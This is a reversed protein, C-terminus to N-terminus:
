AQSQNQETPAEPEQHHHVRDMMAMVTPIIASKALKSLAGSLSDTLKRSNGLVVGAGLAIAVSTWPHERVWEVVPNEEMAQRFQAKAEEASMKHGTEQSVM